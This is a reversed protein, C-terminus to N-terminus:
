AIASEVLHSVGHFQQEFGNNNYNSYQQVAKAILNEYNGISVKKENGYYM